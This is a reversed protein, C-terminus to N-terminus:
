ARNFIHFFISFANHVLLNGSTVLNLHCPDAATPSSIESVSVEIQDPAGSAGIGLIDLFRNGRRSPRLPTPILRQRSFNAYQLFFRNMMKRSGLNFGRRLLVPCRVLSSHLVFCLHSLKRNPWFSFWSLFLKTNFSRWPGALFLM